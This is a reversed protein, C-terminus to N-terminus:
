IDSLDMVEARIAHLEQRIRLRQLARGAASGLAAAAIVSGLILATDRRWGSMTYLGTLVIATGFLSFILTRQRKRHRLLASLSPVMFRPYRRRRRNKSDM